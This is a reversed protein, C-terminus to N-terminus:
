SVTRGFAFFSGENFSNFEFDNFEIDSESKCGVLVLILVSFYVWIKKMSM